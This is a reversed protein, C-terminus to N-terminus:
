KNLFKDIETAIIKAGDNCDASLVQKFCDNIKGSNILTTVENYIKKPNECQIGYGNKTIYEHNKAEQGPIHGTVVVASGSRTGELLMNPGAKTFLIHCWALLEHMNKVFGLVEVDKLKEDTERLKTLTNYLRM